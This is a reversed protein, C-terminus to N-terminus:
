VWESYATSIFKTLQKEDGNIKAKKGFWYLSMLKKYLEFADIKHDNLMSAEYLHSAPSGSDVFILSELMKSNDSLANLIDDVINQLIIEPKKLEVEFETELSKLDPLKYKNKLNQYDKKVDKM